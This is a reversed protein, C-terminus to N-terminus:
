PVMQGGDSCVPPLYLLTELKGSALTLEVQSPQAHFQYRHVNLLAEEASIYRATSHPSLERLWKASRQAVLERADPAEGINM